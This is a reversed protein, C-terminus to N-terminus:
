QDVGLAERCARGVQAAASPMESEGFMAAFEDATARPITITVDPLPAAPLAALAEYADAEHIWRDDADWYYPDAVAERDPRRVYGGGSVEVVPFDAETPAGHDRVTRLYATM